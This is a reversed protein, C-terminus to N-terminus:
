GKYNFLYVATVLIILIIDFIIHICLLMESSNDSHCAIYVIVLCGRKHQCMCMKSPIPLLLMLAMNQNLARRITHLCVLCLM